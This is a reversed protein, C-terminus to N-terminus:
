KSEKNRTGEINGPLEGSDKSEEPGPVFYQNPNGKNAGSASNENSNQHQKYEDPGKGSEYQKPEPQKNGTQYNSDHGLGAPSDERLGRNGSSKEAGSSNNDSKM